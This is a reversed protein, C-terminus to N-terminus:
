FKCWSILMFFWLNLVNKCIFNNNREAVAVLELLEEELLMYVYESPMVTYQIINYKM